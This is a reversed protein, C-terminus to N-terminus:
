LRVPAAAAQAQGPRFALEWRWLPGFRTGHWVGATPSCNGYDYVHQALEIKGQTTHQLLAKIPAGHSVLAVRRLPSDELQAYLEAIRDRTVSEQEHPAAERLGEVYGIELGLLEAIPAATQRAREFPSCLVREVGQSALWAAMERAERRGAETLPPGPHIQYPVGTARDPTAHRILFIAELM